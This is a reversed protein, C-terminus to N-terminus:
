KKDEVMELVKETFFTRYEKFGYMVDARTIDYNIDPVAGNNEVPVGDPRYFLSKTIRTTMRSYTLPPLEVVHGGLGSTAKGLLKARGYGQILSPFADGGSGSVEDILVLIPKTYHIQKPLLKEHFSFSSLPTLYDGKIWTQKVLDVVKEWHVYDLTNKSISAGDLEAKWSVYEERSARFRFDTPSYPEMMFLGLFEELYSVRGGCNHDQDIVLAVTNKELEAVAYEYQEMRNKFADGTEGQQLRPSYHPVRLFGINGKETPYYFATFPKTVVDTADKPKEVRSIGNCAFGRDLIQQPVASFMTKTSLEEINKFFNFENFISFFSLKKEVEEDSFLSKEGKTELKVKGNEIVKSDGKRIEVEVEEGSLGPMSSARRSLVLWSAIRRSSETRGSSVYSEVESLVEEAVQGNISLIEDGVEVKLDSEEMKDKDIKSVLIKGGVLDTSFPVSHTYTYPARIGFHGDKFEAVFQIMTYYFSEDNKTAQIKEQYEPVLEKLSAIGQEEKYLKPGYSNEIHNVLQQFDSLKQDMTLEAQALALSSFAVVLMLSVFKHIM